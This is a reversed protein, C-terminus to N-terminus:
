RSLLKIQNVHMRTITERDKEIEVTGRKKGTGDKYKVYGGGLLLAIPINMRKLTSIVFKDREQVMAQTFGVVGGFFSNEWVDVGAYYIALNPQSQKTAVPLQKKLVPLYENVDFNSFKKVWWDKKHPINGALKKLYLNDFYFDLLTVRQDNKFYNMTGDGAHVDLDIILAHAIKKDQFLKQLTYAIGNFVCFGKGRKRVAHHTGTHLNFSAQNKLAEKAAENTGSTRLLYAPLLKKSWQIGSSEALDKPQGTKLAHLYDQTHTGSLDKLAMNPPAKLMINPSEKLQEAVWKPKIVADLSYDNGNQGIQKINQWYKPSYFGVVNVIKVNNVIPWLVRLARVTPFLSNQM